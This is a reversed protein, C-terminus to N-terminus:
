PAGKDPGVRVVRCAGIEDVEVGRRGRTSSDGEVDATRDAGGQGRISPADDRGPDEEVGLERLRDRALQVVELLGGADLNLLLAKVLSMQAPRNLWRGISAAVQEPGTM